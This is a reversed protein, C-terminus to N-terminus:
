QRLTLVAVPWTDSSPSAVPTSVGDRTLLFSPIELCFLCQFPKRELPFPDLRLADPEPSSSTVPDGAKQVATNASPQDPPYGSLRRTGPMCRERRRCLAIMDRMIMIRQATGQQKAFTLLHSFLFAEAIHTREKFVHQAWDTM